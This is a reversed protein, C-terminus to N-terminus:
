EKGMSMGMFFVGVCIMTLYSVGFTDLHFVVTHLIPWKPGIYFLVGVIALATVILRSM